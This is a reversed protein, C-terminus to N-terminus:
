DTVNAVVGCFSYLRIGEIFLGSSNVMDSKLRHRTQRGCTRCLLLVLWIETPGPEVKNSSAIDGMGLCLNIYKKYSQTLYLM